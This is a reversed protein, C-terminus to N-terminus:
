MVRLCFFYGAEMKAKCLDYFQFSYVGGDPAFLFCVMVKAVLVLTAFHVLASVGSNDVVKNWFYAWDLFTSGTLSQLSACWEVM